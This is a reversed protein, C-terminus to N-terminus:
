VKVKCIIIWVAIIKSIEMYIGFEQIQIERFNQFADDACVQSKDKANVLENMNCIPINM